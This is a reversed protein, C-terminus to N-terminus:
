CGAALTVLNIYAINVNIYFNFAKVMVQIIHAGLRHGLLCIEKL